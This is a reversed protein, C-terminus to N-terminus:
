LSDEWYFHHNEMTKQINVLPYGVLAKTFPWCTGRHSCGFRLGSATARTRWPRWPRPTPSVTWGGARTRCWPQTTVHPSWSPLQYWPFGQNITIFSSSHQATKVDEHKLEFCFIFVYGWGFYDNMTIIYNQVMLSILPFDRTILSIVRRNKWHFIGPGCPSTWNFFCENKHHSLDSRPPNFMPPKVWFFMPFM